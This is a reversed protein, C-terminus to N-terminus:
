WNKARDYLKRTYSIIIAFLITVAWMAVVLVSLALYIGLIVGVTITIADFLLNLM